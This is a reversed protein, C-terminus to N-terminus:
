PNVVEEAVVEDLGADKLQNELELKQAEYGAIKEDFNAMDANKRDTWEQILAALHAIQKKKDEKIIPKKVVEYAVGEITEVSKIVDNEM